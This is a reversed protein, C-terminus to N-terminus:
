GAKAGRQGGKNEMRFPAKAVGEWSSGGGWEQSRPDVRWAVAPSIEADHM